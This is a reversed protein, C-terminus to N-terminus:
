LGIDCLWGTFNMTATANDGVNVRLSGDVPRLKSASFILNSDSDEAAITVGQSYETDGKWEFDTIFDSLAAAAHALVEVTVNVTKPGDVSRDIPSADGIVYVDRRGWSVDFTASLVDLTSAINSSVGSCQSSFDLVINKCEVLEVDGDGAVSDAVAVGSAWTVTDAVLDWNVEVVEDATCTVSYRNVYIGSATASQATRGAQTGSPLGTELVLTGEIMSDFTDQDSETGELSKLLGRLSIDVSGTRERIAAIGTYHIGQVPETNVRSTVEASQWLADINVGSPLTLKAYEHNALM